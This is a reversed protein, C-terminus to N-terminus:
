ARGARRRQEACFAEFLHLYQRWRALGEGMQVVQLGTIYRGCRCVCVDACRSWEWGHNEYVARWIRRKTARSSM